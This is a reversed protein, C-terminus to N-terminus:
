ISLVRMPLASRGKGGCYTPRIPRAMLCFSPKRQQFGKARSSLEAFHTSIAFVGSQTWCDPTKTSTLLAFPDGFGLVLLGVLNMMIFLGLFDITLEPTWFSSGLEISVEIAEM